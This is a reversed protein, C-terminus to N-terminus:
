RGVTGGEALAIGFACGRRHAAVDDRWGDLVPLVEAGTRVAFRLNLPLLILIGLTHPLRATMRM